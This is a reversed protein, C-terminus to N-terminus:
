GPGPQVTVDSAAGHLASGTVSGRAPPPATPLPYGAGAEGGFSFHAFGRLVLASANAGGSGGFYTAFRLKALDQSFMAAFMSLPAPQTTQHAGFGTPINSSRTGGAVYVNNSSDVAVGSCGDGSTGGYYTAGVRASGDAELLFLVCDGAYPLAGGSGNFNPDYPKAGLVTSPSVPFSASLTGAAIVIRGDARLALNNMDLIEDGAAGVYTAFIPTGDTQYKAVFFDVGDNRCSVAPTPICGPDYVAATTIPGTVAPVGVIDPDPRTDALVAPTVVRVTSNTAFLVVPRGQSDVRVSGEVSESAAGGVYTAWGLQTGDASLKALIGDFSNPAQDGPRLKIHGAQLATLIVPPFTDPLYDSANAPAPPSQASAVLYIENTLPDAAVDRVVNTQADAGGFYTAWSLAGTAGDLKAVFGDRAPDTLTGTGGQFTDLVVGSGQTVPLFGAAAGGGVVVNGQGDLDVANARDPGPGGLFTWWLVAGQDDLKAVFADEDGAFGLLPSGPLLDASRAGGVLYLNGNSDLALDRAADALDNGLYTSFENTATVVPPPAPPPPEVKKTGCGVLM